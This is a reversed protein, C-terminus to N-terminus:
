EIAEQHLGQDSTARLTRLQPAMKEFARILMKKDNKESALVAEEAAKLFKPDSILKAMGKVGFYTGGAAALPWPNGHFLSTFGAFAEAVVAADLITTGSKSANFFKQATDALRGSVKQLRELNKFSEQGLIERIVEQDKKNKLLNSFTGLKVQQSVNDTMKNGIVQELKYAKLENFLQKGEASKGLAKELSKIGAASNMRNILTAPDQSFISQNIAKNRFTKAHEAFHKNANVYEKISGPNEKAYELIAQDIEKVIGKLLQKQGGQVEYDIINNLAIKNSLLDEVYFGEKGAESYTSDKKLDELYKLVSKQESSKVAGRSLSRELKDVAQSLKEGGVFAERKLSTRFKDYGKRAIDLDKDKATKLADQLAEGAEYNTKFKVEGLEDAIKKYQTTVQESLEKKFKDLSDGVLSSQAIRSQIAKIINSDTITGLDAQIGAERFDQILQKQIALKENNTFASALQAVSKKPESIAKAAGKAIGGLGQGAAHGIIAAGMGGIPGWEEEAALELGAGAGLGSLAEKSNPLIAKAAQMAEKPGNLAKSIVSLNKPNKLFGVWRAGKEVAGEPNTDIGLSKGVKEIGKGVSVDATRVYKEAEQPNQIQNRLSYLLQEDQEDWVGTQKQELLREIDEFVGKRYEAHQVDKSGLPAVGLEYPLAANEAIGIGIQMPVRSAQTSLGRKPKAYLHEVVEEPSYGEETAGQFDFNPHKESLYSIIEEDSYGENRAGQYDFKKPM